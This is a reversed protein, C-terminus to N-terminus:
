RYPISGVEITLMADAFANVVITHGKVWSMSVENFQVLLHLTLLCDRTEKKVKYSQEVQTRFQFQWNRIERDCELDTLM